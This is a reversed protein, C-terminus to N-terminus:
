KSDQITDREVLKHSLNSPLVQEHPPVLVGGSVITRLAEDVSLNMLIIDTAPVFMTYGTVPMPSSPIFVSILEHGRAENLSKICNGTLFGLSYVGDRPYPVAVVREFEVKKEEGFFFETIQKVYPYVAGILPVRELLREFLAVVRRGLFGSFWWGCLLLLMAVMGVSVWFRLTAPLADQLDAQALL